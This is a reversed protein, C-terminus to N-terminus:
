IVEIMDIEYEYYENASLSYAQIDNALRMTFTVDNYVMEEDNSVDEFLPPEITINGAGNLDTTVM